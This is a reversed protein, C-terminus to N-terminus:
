NDLSFPQNNTWQLARQFAVSGSYTYSIPRVSGDAMAFNAGGGHPSGWYDGQGIGPADQRITSGGRGTGGYGGSYIVEEWNSGHSNSLQNTDMGAEGVYVTNSTGNLNTIQSMTLRQNRSNQYTNWNITYNTFPGNFGPSNAGATSFPLHGRAPCMYIPVGVGAQPTGAMAINYLPGQEIFPLTQFAWCWDTRTATNEGNNAMYKKTDHFGHAALGMQKLNNICQTRAAAERVKQVAPVLLAILIAIIAIVVLLEILTFAYRRLRVMM